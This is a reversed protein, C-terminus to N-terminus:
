YIPYKAGHLLKLQTMSNRSFPAVQLVDGTLLFVKEMM